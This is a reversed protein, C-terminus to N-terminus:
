RRDNWDPNAYRTRVCNALWDPPITLDVPAWHNALASALHRARTASTDLSCAGSVSGQHLFGVLTRRQGAGALKQGNSVVLDHTVPNQFCFPSTSGSTDPSLSSTIGEAQLAQALAVHLWQYSTARKILAFSNGAPVILSYTWDARHDVSGGGTWRRIWSLNPISQRAKPMSGFYGITGWNGSWHYVRLTPKTAHYLLWEDAAMAEPGPRPTPDLWLDLSELVLVTSPFHAFQTASSIESAPEM